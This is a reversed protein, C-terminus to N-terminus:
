FFLTKLVLTMLYLCLCKHNERRMQNKKKLEIALKYGLEPRRDKGAVMDKVESSCVIAGFNTTVRQKMQEINLLDVGRCCDDMLITRYGENISDMTTSGVCVDYALGCIYVDTINKLKLQADLKTDTLKMNDWFVSYSDIDPNTGKYVKISDEIIKLDKHLEAGWTNQVCHKPWLTQKMPPEGDFIVTDMIKADQAKVPSSKHLPRIHINEIFSVHDIPHWDFSYFYADFHVNDLLRNIPKIIEEGNHGAPCKRIDLTGSIFDNQVDVLILASVPKVITKIWDNWCSVFEQRDILGDNNDDFISFIDELQKKNIEYSEDKSNRFLAKCLTEFEELNLNNDPMKM